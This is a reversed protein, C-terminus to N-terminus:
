KKQLCLPGDPAAPWRFAIKANLKFKHGLRTPRTASQGNYKQPHFPQIDNYGGGKVKEFKLNSKEFKLDVRRLALKFNSFDLKFNSFHRAV